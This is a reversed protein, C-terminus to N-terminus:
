DGMAYGVHAGLPVDANDSSVEIVRASQPMNEFGVNVRGTFQLRAGPGAGDPGFVSEQGALMREQLSRLASAQDGTATGVEGLGPIDVSIDMQELLWAVKGVLWAAMRNWMGAIGDWFGQAWRGGVDLADSIAGDFVADIGDFLGQYWDKLGGWAQKIGDAAGSWDGTVLGVIAGITGDVVDLVAGLLTGFFEEISRWTAKLDEVAQAGDGGLLSVTSGVWAAILGGVGDLLTGFFGELGAWAQRVGDAAGSWDGTVLGVIAGITGDVVDLVAGLLTGFFEEISRWTAKLDEVAQAGDGGLLSVTSGVWAAILGGVDDLLTGFFGELGAWAQRVGDAAGSWDGDILAAVWQVLGGFIAKLDAFLEDFFPGVDDWYRVILFAAAALALAFWGIPTTLLALGLGFVAKTLTLISAILRAKLVVALGIALNTWGGVAEAARSLWDFLDRAADTARQFGERLEPMLDQLRAVARRVLDVIEPRMEQLWKTLALTGREFGPLLQEVIGFGVGRVVAWLNALRRSVRESSRATQENMVIGLDRAERALEFLGESGGGLMDVMAVGESDFLKFAAAIRKAPDEQQAMADAIEPLLERMPRIRGTTDTIQIGMAELTDKAEGGGAAAEAIRQTAHQLATDFAQNSLGSREAAYRWEQLEEIGVGLKDATKAVSDGYGITSRVLGFFEAGVAAAAGGVGAALRTVRSFTDGFAGSLQRTQRLVRDFGTNQSVGRLQRQIGQLPRTAGDLMEFLVQPKTDSM